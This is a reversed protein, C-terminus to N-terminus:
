RIVQKKGQHIYIGAQSPKKTMKMGSLTYWSPDTQANNDIIPHSIGTSPMDATVDKIKYKAGDKENQIELYTDKNINAFDVTQPSGTGTSFVFSVM